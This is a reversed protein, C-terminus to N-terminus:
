NDRVSMKLGIPYEKKSIGPHSKAHTIKQYRAPAALPDRFAPYAMYMFFQYCEPKKYASQRSLKMMQFTNPKWLCTWLRELLCVPRRGATLLSLLWPFMEASPPQDTQKTLPSMKWCTLETNLRPWISMFLKICQQQTKTQYPLGTNIKNIRIIKKLNIKM